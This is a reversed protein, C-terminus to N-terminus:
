TAIRFSQSYVELLRTMRDRYTFKGNILASYGGRKLASLREPNLLLSSVKNCLENPSNQDFFEAELGESYIEMHHQTREALLVGGCAPIEFTRQTYDDRNLKRLFGLCLKASGLAKCLDDFKLNSSKIYPRLPSSRSLKNWQGGHIALKINPLNKILYELFFARHREFTGVFVVDCSWKEFENPTIDVAKHIKPYYSFSFFEVNPNLPYVEQVNMKRTTFIYDYEPIAARQYKSWNNSNQSFFDDHNINCVWAGISKLMSVDVPSLHLGKLVIIIQPSFNLSAVILKQINNLRQYEPIKRFVRRFIRRILTAPIGSCDPDGVSLVNHGMEKLTESYCWGGSAESLDGYVIINM